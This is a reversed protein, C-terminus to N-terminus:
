NIYQIYHRRTALLLLAIVAGLVDAILDIMTDPLSRQSAMGASGIAQMLKDYVESTEYFRQYIDLVIHAVRHEDLLHM